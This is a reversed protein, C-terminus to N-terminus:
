FTSVQTRVPIDGAMLSTPLVTTRDKRNSRGPDFRNMEVM